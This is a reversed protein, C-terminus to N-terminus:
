PKKKIPSASSGSKQDASVKLSGTRSLSQENDESGLKGLKVGSPLEDFSTERVIKRSMSRKVKKDGFSMMFTKNNQIEQHTAQLAMTVQVSGNLVYIYDMKADYDEM